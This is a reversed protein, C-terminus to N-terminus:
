SFEGMGLGVAEMKSESSHLSCCGVLVEGECVLLLFYREPQHAREDGLGVEVFLFDEVREEAIFLGVM